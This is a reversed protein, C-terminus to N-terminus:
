QAKGLVEAGTASLWRRLLSNVEAPRELTALHGCEEIIKLVAGPIEAAMEQHFALPTLVDQRGCILLTPCQIARLLPRFDPRVIIAQQQRLYAQVGIREAMARITQVLAAENVRDPHILLPLMRNTVPTFGESSQAWQMLIRRRRTEDPEDMRARTDLLALRQVRHPAQRCIEQAVYGGMSLGALHFQAAPAEDLVRKAMDGISSDRTLDAVWPVCLDALGDVQPQFLAHDCLLGPLLILSSM